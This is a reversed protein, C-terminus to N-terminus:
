SKMPWSTSKMVRTFQKGSGKRWVHIKLSSYNKPAETLKRVNERHKLQLNYTERVRVSADTVVCPPFDEPIDEICDLLTQGQNDKRVTVAKGAM